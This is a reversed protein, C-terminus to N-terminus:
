AFDHSPEKEKQETPEPGTREPGTPEPRQTVDNNTDARRRQLRNPVPSPKEDRRRAPTAAGPPHPAAPLRTGHRRFTFLPAFGPGKGGIWRFDYSVNASPAPPAPACAARPSLAPGRRPGNSCHRQPRAHGPAPLLRRGPPPIRARTPRPQIPQRGHPGPNAGRHPRPQDAGSHPERLGALQARPRPRPAARDGCPPRRLNRRHSAGEFFFPGTCAGARCPSQDSQESREPFSEHGKAARCIPGGRRM